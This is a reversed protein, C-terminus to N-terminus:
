MMLEAMIGDSVFIGKRTLRLHTEVIELTQGSLFKESQKLCFRKKEEGFLAALEQLDIGKMTRLRTLIFDNFLAKEDLIEMEFGDNRYRAGPAARNWQRSFGNYSHASAGIGLYPTGNWYASNHRSSYGPRAFNSIEYHEFGAASLCDMLIEFLAVSLEEDISRVIGRQWRDFLPTGEEYILHYASIHRVDLDIAQNVTTKWIEETQDPLGYM